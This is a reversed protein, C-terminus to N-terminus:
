EKPEFIIWKGDILVEITNNKGIQYNLEEGFNSTNNELPIEDRGVTQIITGDMIGCRSEINSEKKTDYYLKDKIKILKRTKDKELLTIKGVRKITIPYTETAEGKFTVEINDGKNFNLLEIKEKQWTYSTENTLDLVFSKNRFDKENEDIGEVVMHNEKIETVKAYFTQDQEIREKEKLRNIKSGLLYGLFCIFIFLLLIIFINGIEKKKM